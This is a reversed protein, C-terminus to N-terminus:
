PFSDSRHSRFIQILNDAPQNFQNSLAILASFTQEGSAVGRVFFKCTIESFEFLEFRGDLMMHPEVSSM